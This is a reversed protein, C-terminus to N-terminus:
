KVDVAWQSANKLDGIAKLINEKFLQDKMAQANFVILHMIDKDKMDPWWIKFQNTIWFPLLSPAFATQNDLNLYEILLQGSIEPLIFVHRDNMKYVNKYDNYYDYISLVGADSPLDTNEIQSVPKLQSLLFTNQLDALQLDLKLKASYSFVSMHTTSQFVNPVMLRLLFHSNSDIFLHKKHEIKLNYIKKKILISEILDVAAQDFIYEGTIEHFDSWVVLAVSYPDLEELFQILNTHVEKKSYSMQNKTAWKQCDLFLSQGFNLQVVKNKHPVLGAVSTLIDNIALSSSQYLRCSMHEVDTILAACTQRYKEIMDFQNM